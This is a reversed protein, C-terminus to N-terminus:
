YIELSSKRPPKSAAQEKLFAEEVLSIKSAELELADYILQLRERVLAAASIDEQGATAAAQLEQGVLHVAAQFLQWNVHEM